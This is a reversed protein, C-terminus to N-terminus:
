LASYETDVGTQKVQIGAQLVGPDSYRPEAGANIRGYQNSAPVQGVDGVDYENNPAIAMPGYNSERLENCQAVAQM